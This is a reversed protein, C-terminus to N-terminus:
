LTSLVSSAEEAPVGDVLRLTQSSLAGLRDGPLVFGTLNIPDAASVELIEGSREERRLARLLEVAEPLAFQEGLYGSVFRGGRIEGRAELRRYALLLHRWPPALSERALLDRFVVGWRALLQRAFRETADEVISPDRQLLSWRGRSARHRERTMLSRLADFGDATVDGHAVLERLATEVEAVTRESHKVIESLFSAGRRDLISKVQQANRSLAEEKGEDSERLGVLWDLDERFFLAVPVVRSVRTSTAKSLRGWAVEGSFCLQDLYEPRYDALRAPLVQSEWAAAPVEYGQLQYVLRALGEVGYLKASAALHQWRLLFRMFHATSVPEIERRLRGLTLRHIRALLRRQCWEIEEGSDATFRGRLVQGEAELRLLASQVLSERLGLNEVFFSARRPGTSDLWGRLISTAGEEESEVGARSILPLESLLAGEPCAKRVAENREAAVWFLSAGARFTAARRARLLEEYWPTWEATEPVLVLTLLADHLEDASRVVPWSEEEVLRIAEPDLKGLESADGAELTRRLQVARARREELPADDLFAYPNANVIEHSFPSPAVSEKVVCRIEGRALRELISRLGDLDMAEHLCDSITEKVLPHDPIRIPGTLNEACAAQDPFVAALLDDARMRQIPPPVKKGGRFRPIALSRCLNWRWRATFMPAALLAQTLVAEVTERKVFSPVIELPFAHGESLSVIIGNDTAAAQLELNFSRCFRKRLALGWARNIRSGFPSHVVLQMGGSEDFFREIVVTTFSPVAGLAREGAEVYEVLEEAGLRCLGGGETLSRLREERSEGSAVAARERIASVERSLELTRGLAEGRWFPVSPPAGKADEVRVRGSEVRRIRWSHTGLLFVDGALSEVAFDEDLTGVIKEEPEAVVFYAANEPIAGGSTIATLRANRRGRLRGNVRDRHLYAASRGRSSAIGESLMEVVDEFDSRALNRYPYAGRVAQFLEEEGWDDAAVAAVIQQALVDLPSEPIELADLEGRRIGRVLAACEVLEDRTTAFLIGKPTASLFHGSRGVRQLLVALSRPTGIQCVLDITGVDIGLELSATAVVAKIVGRKLEDEARLRLARSLSGHHALIAKEGLREELHHAVRESLRRTNVFVLTTKHSNILEALRDYIEAWMENTAVAGLEDRPVVVSLEMDRRHGVQVIEADRSLFRAVEEVPKVTASLGIRQPRAGGAERVLRDLRELSLALHSGRKDDALAHVEDVIVTEVGRLLERSKAATLVIYLSEPTTVLIHPAARLMKQREPPPTDGTRVATRITSLAVGRREALERIGALPVELNKHIDNSLARLPSVYVVGVSEPLEGESAVTVLGDIAVLFAALTKGSGTPASILVDRGSAILPWGRLQPETARGFRNEFWEAVLPHFSSTM